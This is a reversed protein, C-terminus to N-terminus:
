FAAGNRCRLERPQPPPPATGCPQGVEMHEVSIHGTGKDEWQGEENLKYVKVRHLNNPAQM